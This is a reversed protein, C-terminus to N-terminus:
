FTPRALLLTWAQQAQIKSSAMRQGATVYPDNPATFAHAIFDREAFEIDPDNRLAALTSDTQKGSVSLIRVNTRRLTHHHLAGQAGIRRSFEAESLYDKPKVLLRDPVM